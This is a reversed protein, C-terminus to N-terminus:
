FKKGKGQKSSPSSIKGGSSGKGALSKSSQSDSRMSFQKRHASQSFQLKENLKQLKNEISVVKWMVENHLLGSLKAARKLAGRPFLETLGSFLENKLKLFLKFSINDRVKELVSQTTQASSQGLSDICDQCGATRARAVFLRQVKARNSINRM